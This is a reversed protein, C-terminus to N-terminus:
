CRGVHRLKKTNLCYRYNWRDLYDFFRCMDDQTAPRLNIIQSENCVFGCKYISCLSDSENTINAACYHKTVYDSNDKYIFVWENPKNDRWRTVDVFYFWGDIMEVDNWKM